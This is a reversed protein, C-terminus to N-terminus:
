GFHRLFHQNRIFRGFRTHPALGTVGIAVVFVGDLLALGALVAPWHAQLRGRARSLVAAAGDGAFALVAVIGILPVVFCVNFLVLLVIQRMTDFGSGVIAVGAVYLAPGITTPNVSDALGISIVLGILRLM